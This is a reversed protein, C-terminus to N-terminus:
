TWISPSFNLFLASFPFNSMFTCRKVRWSFILSNRSFFYVDKKKLDFIKKLNLFCLRVCEYVSMCVCLCIFHPYKFFKVVFVECLALVPDDVEDHDPEKSHNEEERDDGKGGPM